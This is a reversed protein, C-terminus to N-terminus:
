GFIREQCEPCLHSIIQERETPTLNPFANQVLEGACYNMYEEETTKVFHSKKCFPCKIELLIIETM